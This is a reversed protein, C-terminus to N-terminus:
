QNWYGVANVIEPDNECMPSEDFFYKPLDKVVAYQGNGIIEFDTISCKVNPLSYVVITRGTKNVVYKKWLKADIHYKKSSGFQYYTNHITPSEVVTVRSTTAGLLLLLPALVCSWIVFLEMLLWIYCLIYGEFYKRTKKLNGLWSKPKKGIRRLHPISFLLHPICFAYAIAELIIHMLQAEILM